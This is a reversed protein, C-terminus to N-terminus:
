RGAEEQQAERWLARARSPLADLVHEVQGPEIRRDLVRLVAQAVREVDQLEDHGLLEDRMSQSFDEAHAAKLGAASPHWGDYYVGRVLMPLQAGFHAMEDIALHDRVIQLCGRLAEYATRRNAWGLEVDIERLWQMTKQTTTDFVDMGTTTM